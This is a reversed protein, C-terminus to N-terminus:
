IKAEELKSAYKQANQYNLFQKKIQM